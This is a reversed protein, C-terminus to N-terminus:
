PLPMTLAVETGGSDRREIKVEGGFAAAREEMGLLGLSAEGTAEEPLIGRGNDLVGGM